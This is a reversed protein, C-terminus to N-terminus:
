FETTWWATAGYELETWYAHFDNGASPRGAGHQSGFTSRYEVELNGPEELYHDYTVIYPSEQAVAVGPALLMGLSLGAWVMFQAAALRRVRRRASGVSRGTSRVAM